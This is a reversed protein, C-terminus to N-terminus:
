KIKFLKKANGIFILYILKDAQEPFQQQIPLVVFNNVFHAYMNPDGMNVMPCDSGFLVRDFNNSLSKMLTTTVEGGCFSIDCYLQSNNKVVSEAMIEIARIKSEVDGASLHGLIVRVDPHRQALEYILEPSSPSGVAGSHFLCPLDFEKALKMYPDYLESNAPVQNAEPHFKLGVFKKKYKTLIERINQANGHRPECVAYLLAKPYDSFAKYLKKNAEKEDLFPAHGEKSPDIGMGSLNSVIFYDVPNKGMVNFLQTVSFDTNVDWRGIHTHIDIIGMLGEERFGVVYM